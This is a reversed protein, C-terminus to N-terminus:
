PHNEFSDVFVRKPRQIAWKWTTSKRTKLSVICYVIHKNNNILDQECKLCEWIFNFASSYQLFAFIKRKPNHDSNYLTHHGSPINQNISGFETRNKWSSTNANLTGHINIWPQQATSTRSWLHPLRLRIPLMFGSIRHSNRGTTLSNVYDRQTCGKPLDIKYKHNSWCLLSTEGWIEKNHICVVSVLNCVTCCKLV